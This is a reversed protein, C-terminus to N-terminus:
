YGLAAEVIRRAEPDSSDYSDDVSRSFANEADEISSNLARLREDVMKEAKMIEPVVVNLDTIKKGDRIIYSGKYAMYEEPVDVGYSTSPRSIFGITFLLALTAAVGAWALPRLRLIRVKDREGAYAAAKAPKPLSEGTEEAASAGLSGYWCFMERYKELHQPLDPRSFYAYLEKEEACSTEGTLFREIWTDINRDNITNM